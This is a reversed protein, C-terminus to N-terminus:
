PKYRLIL